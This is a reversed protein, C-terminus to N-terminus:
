VCILTSANRGLLLVAIEMKGYYVAWHLATGGSVEFDSSEDVGGRARKCNIGETM